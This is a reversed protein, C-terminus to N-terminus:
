GLRPRPEFGHCRRCLHRAAAHNDRRRPTVGDFLNELVRASVVNIQDDTARVTSAAHLVGYRAAHGFAQHTQCRTRDECNVRGLAMPGCGGSSMTIVEPAAMTQPTSKEAATPITRSSDRGCPMVSSRISASPHSHLVGTMILCM